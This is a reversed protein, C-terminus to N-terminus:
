TGADGSAEGLLFEAIRLEYPEDINVVYRDVVVGACHAEIILRDELLHKRTVAYCLGNRHYYRPIAQRLSYRAGEPHYFGIIPGDLTLTKNPTFHAPTPSVTAAAPYHGEIVTDLTRRIDEVRRMPSTPELLVSIDYTRGDLKECESWAHIWMDVSTARDSALEPPRRFPVRAGYKAGEAMIEDDDTSVIIADLDRADRATLIARGLLSIGNITRLNKRPISKSGGRAPVVALVSRGKYSM